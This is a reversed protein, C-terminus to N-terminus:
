EKSTDYETVPARATRAGGVGPQGDLRAGGRPPQPPLRASGACARVDTRGATGARTVPAAPTTEWVAARPEGRECTDSVGPPRAAGDSGGAGPTARGILGGADPSAARRCGSPQRALGVRAGVVPARGAALSEAM